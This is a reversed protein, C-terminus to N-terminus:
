LAMFLAPNVAQRRAKELHTRMFDAASLRDGQELYRIIQLHEEAQHKRQPRFREKRYEVLRRLRALHRVTQLLFRNGSCVALTDHFGSSTDFMEMATMTLYGDEALHEQQKRCHALAQPDIHFTASLLGAPEIIARLAYSEEYAEVSDILPLTRWGQGAMHELWGEQQCRLLVKRLVPRTVGFELMLEMESFQEPLQRTIRREALQRYLPDEAQELVEAVLNGLQSAHQTLFFGRNRDYTVMGKDMLYQMAQKVPTRSTNLAQALSSEVLHHGVALQERRVYSIVDRVIRAQLPTLTAM